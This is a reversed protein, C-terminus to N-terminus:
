KASLDRINATAACTESPVRKGSLRLLHFPARIAWLFRLFWIYADALLYLNRNVNPEICVSTYVHVYIYIVIYVCIFIHIHTDIHILCCVCVCM